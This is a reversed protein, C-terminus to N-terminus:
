IGVLLLELASTHQSGINESVKSPGGGGQSAGLGSGSGLGTDQVTNEMSDMSLDMGEYTHERKSTHGKGQLIFKPGVQGLNRGVNGHGNGQVEEGM